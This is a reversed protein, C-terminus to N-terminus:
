ISVLGFAFFMIAQNKSECIAQKFVGEMEIDFDALFQRPHLRLLLAYIKYIM